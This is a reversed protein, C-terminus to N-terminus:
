KKFEIHLVRIDTKGINEATHTEANIWRCEGAKMTVDRTKGDTGTFKAKAPAMAYVLYDPHSHMPSKEGPKITAEVVRVRDNNFIAKYQKPAVKVPDQAAAPGALYFIIASGILISLLTKM